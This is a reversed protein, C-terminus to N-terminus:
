RDQLWGRVTEWIRPSYLEAGVFTVLLLVTAAAAVPRAWGRARLDGYAGFFDYLQWVLALLLVLVVFGEPSGAM